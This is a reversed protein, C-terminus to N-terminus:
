QNLYINLGRLFHKLQEDFLIKTYCNNILMLIILMLIIFMIVNLFLIVQLIKGVKRKKILFLLHPYKFFYGCLVFFFVFFLTFHLSLLLLFIFVSPFLTFFGSVSSVSCFLSFGLSQSFQRVLLRTSVVSFTSLQTELTSFSRFSGLQSRSGRM